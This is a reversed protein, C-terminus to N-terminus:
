FDESRRRAGHVVRRIVVLEEGLDVAYRIVYPTRPVALERLGAETAERGLEPYDSLLEVHRNIARQIRVAAQPSREALYEDIDRLDRIAREARQVRM